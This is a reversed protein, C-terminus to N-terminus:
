ASEVQSGSPNGKSKQCIAVNKNSMKKARPGLVAKIFPSYGDRISTVSRASASIIITMVGCPRNNNYTVLSKDSMKSLSLDKKRASKTPLFCPSYTNNCKPKTIKTIRQSKYLANKRSVFQLTGLVIYRDRNFQQWPPFWRAGSARGDADVRRKHCFSIKGGAIDNRISYIGVLPKAKIM